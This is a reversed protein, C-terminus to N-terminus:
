ASVDAVLVLHCHRNNVVEARFRRLRGGRDALRLEGNVPESTCRAADIADALPADPGDRADLRGGPLRESLRGFRRLFSPSEVSGWIPLCGDRGKWRGAVLLALPAAHCEVYHHAAAHRSAGYRTALGFPTRLSREHRRAEDAFATGQFLLQGAGFNAEAELGRSLRGFLEAETDLRMVAEHWPCLLHVIEHAETFRRRGASQREDIFLTREEFWMAGLLRARLDERIATSAPLRTIELRERVGVAEAVAHLPTPLVGLAGSRRLTELCACAIRTRTYPSLPPEAM